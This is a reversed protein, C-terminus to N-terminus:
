PTEGELCLDRTPLVRGERVAEMWRRVDLAGCTARLDDTLRGLGDTAARELAAQRVRDRRAEAYREAELLLASRLLRNSVLAQGLIQTNTYATHEVWGAEDSETARVADVFAKEAQHVDAAAAFATRVADTYILAEDMSAQALEDLGVTNGWDVPGFRRLVWDWLARRAAEKLVLGGDREEYADTTRTFVYRFRRVADEWLTRAAAYVPRDGWGFLWDGTEEIFPELQKRLWDGVTKKFLAVYAVKRLRKVNVRISRLKLLHKCTNKCIEVEAPVLSACALAALVDCVIEEGTDDVLDEADDFISAPGVPEMKEVPVAAPGSATGGPSQLFVVSPAPGAARATVTGLLVGVLFIPVLRM